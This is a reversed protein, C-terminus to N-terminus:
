WWWTQLKPMLANITKEVVEPAEYVSNPFDALPVTPLSVPDDVTKIDIDELALRSLLQVQPGLATHKWNSGFAFDLMVGLSTYELDKKVSFPRGRALKARLWWLEVLELGKNLVAPGVHNDLFSSTMRDQILQRNSKFKDGTTYIGHLYGMSEM